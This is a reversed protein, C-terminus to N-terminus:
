LVPDQRTARYLFDAMSSYPVVTWSRHASAGCDSPMVERADPAPCDTSVCLRGARGPATPIAWVSVAAGARLATALEDAAAAAMARLDTPVPVLEGAKVIGDPEGAKGDYYPIHGVRQFRGADATSAMALVYAAGHKRSRRRAEGRAQGITMPQNTVFRVVGRADTYDCGYHTVHM